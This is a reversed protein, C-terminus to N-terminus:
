TPHPHAIESQDFACINRDCKELDYYLMYFIFDEWVTDETMCDTHIM